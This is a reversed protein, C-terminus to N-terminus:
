SSARYARVWPLLNRGPCATEKWQNHARVNAAPIRNARRLEGVLRTLADLAARTPHETQFNGILCIGINHENNAGGSHAGQWRLDRGEFVRGFPDVLFHYGIDGYSQGEMHSRQIERVARASDGASGSLRVPHAMASHHITILSYPGRNPEMRAPDPSRASWSARGLTGAPVASAAEAPSAAVLQNASRLGVRARDAQSLSAAPDVLVDEFRDRAKLLRAELQSRDVAAADARALTVLGQALELEGEIRWHATASTGPGELWREIADLKRWSLPQDAWAPALTPPPAVPPLPVPRRAACSALAAAAFLALPALRM